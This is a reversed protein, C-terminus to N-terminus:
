EVEVGAMAIVAARDVAKTMAKRARRTRQARAKARAKAEAKVEAKVQAQASDGLESAAMVRAQDKIRAKAEAEVEARFREEASLPSIRSWSCTDFDYQWDDDKIQKRLTASRAAWAIRAEAEEGVPTWIRGDVKWNEWCEDASIMRIMVQVMLSFNSFDM